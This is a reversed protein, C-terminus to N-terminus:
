TLRSMNDMAQLLMVDQQLNGGRLSRDGYRQGMSNGPIDEPNSHSNLDLLSAFMPSKISGYRDTGSAIMTDAFTTAYHLYGSAPKFKTRPFSFVKGYAKDMIMRESNKENPIPGDDLKKGKTGPEAEYVEIEVLRPFIHYYYTDHIRIRISKTTIPEFDVTNIEQKTDKVVTLPTNGAWTKKGWAFVEFDKIALMERHKISVLVVRQVTKPEKFDIVINTPQWSLPQDEGIWQTAPNGDIANGIVWETTHHSATLTAEKTLDVKRGIRTNGSTDVSFNSVTKAPIFKNLDYTENFGSRDKMGLLLPLFTLLIGTVPLKKM